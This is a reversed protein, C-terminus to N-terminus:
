KNRKWFSERESSTELLGFLNVKLSRRFINFSHPPFGDPGPAKFAKISFVAQKVEEETVNEMLNDNENEGLIRPITNLMSRRIIHNGEKNERKYATKFYEVAHKGM